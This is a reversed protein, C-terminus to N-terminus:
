SCNELQKDIVAYCASSLQATVPLVWINKPLKDMVLCRVKVADKSTIIIALDDAFALDAESFAHHDPFAHRILQFGQQELTEFFRQPYGIGTVAHITDGAQPPKQSPAYFLPQLPQTALHMHLPQQTHNCFAADGHYVVPECPLKKHLRRGWERLFGVPLLMGNGLGRKADFVIWAMDHQLAHHQLGDDCLILQTNPYTALLLQISEARNRGVCVPVNTAQKILCPEDGVEQPTTNGAVLKAATHSGGYGRSVVAVQVNKAQLHRVLAILFPTKGSGGVTINGVVWVPVSARYAKKIGLAYLLRHTSAGLWYLLMLPLLVWLWWSQRQWAATIHKELSKM